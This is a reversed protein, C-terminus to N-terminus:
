SRNIYGLYQNYDQVIDPKLANRSEDCCNGEEPPDHINTLVHVNRKDKIVATMAGRRSNRINKQKLNV